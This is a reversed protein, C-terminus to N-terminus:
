ARGDSRAPESRWRPSPSNSRSRCATAPSARRRPCGNEPSPQRPQPGPIPFAPPVMPPPCLPLSPRQRDRRTLRPEDAGRVFGAHFRPAMARSSRRGRACTSCTIPLGFPSFPQPGGGTKTTAMPMARPGDEPYRCPAAGRTAAAADWPRNVAPRSFRRRLGRPLDRQRGARRRDDSADGYASADCVQLPCRLSTCSPRWFSPPAM